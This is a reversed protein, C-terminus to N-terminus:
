FFLCLLCVFFLGRISYSGGASLLQAWEPSPSLYSDYVFIMPLKSKPDTVIFLYIFLILYM